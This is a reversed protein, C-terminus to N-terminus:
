AVAKRERRQRNLEALRERDEASPEKTPIVGQDRHRRMWGLLDDKMIILRRGSRLVKLEGTAIAHDLTTGPLGSAEIAEGRTYALREIGHQQQM